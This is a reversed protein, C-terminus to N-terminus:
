PRVAVKVSAPRIVRSGRRYGRQVEEVVTNEPVEETPVRMVADHVMPDFEKGVAEIPEVGHRALLDRLQRLILDVGSVLAEYSQSEDAAQRAREFNDLVPLLDAVFSEIARSATELRQEETRRRFNQFDALVRLAQAREAELEKELERIRCEIDSAEAVVEETPAVAQEPSEAEGEPQQEPEESTQESPECAEEEVKKKRSMRLM